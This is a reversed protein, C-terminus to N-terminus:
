HMSAPAADKLDSLAADARLFVDDLREDATAATAAACLAQISHREGCAALRERLDRLRTPVDDGHLVLILEPSGTVRHLSDGAAPVLAPELCEELDALLRETAREGRRAVLGAYEQLEVLAVTRPPPAAADPPSVAAETAAADALAASRESERERQRADLLNMTLRALSALADRQTDTLERPQHDIVCVTGVPAGAPTVLPMGAYFRVGGATVLPNDHFRRDLTADPIEFLQGPERIAHDCFAIHRETQAPGFGIRAKFWQRDRDVLSVLAVPADCVASALRVIDEYAAEPLSDVVGYRDLERQRAAEDLNRNM